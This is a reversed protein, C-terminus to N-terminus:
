PKIRGDNTKPIEVNGPSSTAIHNITAEKQRPSLMKMWNFFRDMVGKEIGEYTQLQDLFTKLPSESNSGGKAIATQITPGTAKIIEILGYLAQQGTLKGPTQAQTQLQGGQQQLQAELLKVKEADPLKEYQEPTMQGQPQQGTEKEQEAQAEALLQENTKGAEKEQDNVKKKSTDSVPGTATVVGKTYIEELRAQRKTLLEIKDLVIDMKDPSAAASGKKKNQTIKKAKELVGKAQEPTPNDFIREEKEKRM